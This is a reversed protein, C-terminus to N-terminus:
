LANPKGERPHDEFCVQRQKGGVCSETSLTSRSRSSGKL